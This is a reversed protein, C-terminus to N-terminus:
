KELRVVHRWEGGLWIAADRDDPTLTKQNAEPILRITQTRMLATLATDIEDRTYDLDARLAALSTPGRGTLYHTIAQTPILQINM